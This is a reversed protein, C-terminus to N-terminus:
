NYIMGKGFGSVRGIEDIYGDIATGNPPLGILGIYALFMMFYM